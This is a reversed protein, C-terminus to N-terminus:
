AFPGGAQQGGAEDDVAQDGPGGAADMLRGQQHQRALIPDDIVRPREGVKLPQRRRVALHDFIGLAVMGQFEVGIRGAICQIQNGPKITVELCALSGLARAMTAPWPHSPAYSPNNIRGVHRRWSCKSPAGKKDILQVLRTAEQSMPPSLRDGSAARKLYPLAKSARSRDGAIMRGFHFNLVPHEPAKRLGDLYTQEADRIKGISEQISGLTDYFEGPLAASNVRKQLGLVLELAQRSQDLYTHLIWAKNNIAEVSNPQTKLVLDYEAVARELSAESSKPTPSARPSRSCCTAM